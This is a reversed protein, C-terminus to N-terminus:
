DVFLPDEDVVIEGNPEIAVKCTSNKPLRPRRITFDGVATEGSPETTLTINATGESKWVAYDKTIENAESSVRSQGIDM